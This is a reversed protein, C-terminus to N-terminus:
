RKEFVYVPGYSDVTFFGAHEFAAVLDAVSVRRGEFTSPHLEIVAQRCRALADVDKAVLGAEAGEVDCVLAFEGIAHDRLLHSLTTVPVRVGSREDTALASDIQADGLVLTTEPGEAAYDIAASVVTLDAGPANGLVNRRIVGALRPNPEVTVLRRGPKMRRAIQSSVVGLCGGLEVVDLDRRLHRQVFRIEASEYLRFLLMAKVRPAVDAGGTDIVCGRSPIRDRLIRGVARGVVPRTLVGAVRAKLSMLVSV